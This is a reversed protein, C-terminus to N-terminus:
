LISQPTKVPTKNEFNFGLENRAEDNWFLVNPARRKDGLAANNNRRKIFVEKENGLMQSSKFTGEM